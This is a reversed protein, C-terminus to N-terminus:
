FHLQFALYYGEFTADSQLDDLDDLEVSMSRYGLTVGTDVVPFM